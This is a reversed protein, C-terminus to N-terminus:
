LCIGKYFFDTQSLHASKDQAHAFEVVPKNRQFQDTHLLKHFYTCAQLNEAFKRLGKCVQNCTQVSDANQTHM